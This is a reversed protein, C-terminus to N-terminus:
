LHSKDKIRQVWLCLCISNRVNGPLVPLKFFRLVDVGVSNPLGVFIRVSYCTKLRRTSRPDMLLCTTPHTEQDFNQWHVMCSMEGRGSVLAKHHLQGLGFSSFLCKTLTNPDKNEASHSMHNELDDMNNQRWLAANYKFAVPTLCGPFNDRRQQHSIPM